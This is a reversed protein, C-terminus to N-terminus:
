LRLDGPGALVSELQDVVEFPRGGHLFTLADPLLRLEQSQSIVPLLVLRPTVLAM